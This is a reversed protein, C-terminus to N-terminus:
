GMSGPLKPVLHLRRYRSRPRDTTRLLRTAKQVLAQLNDAELKKKLQWSTNVVTKYSIGLKGAIDRYSKCEALLILVDLERPTLDVLLNPRSSTRSVAVDIALSHELYRNGRQVERIAKVLEDPAADKAVYATAGVELAQLVINPDRHMSLVVIPVRRKDANIRRILSLGELGSNWFSLDTVVVDPRRKRFLEYGTATDSAEFIPKIRASAL